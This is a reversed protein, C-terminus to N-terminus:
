KPEYADLQEEVCDIEAKSIAIENRPEANIVERRWIYRRGPRKSAHIVDPAIPDRWGPWEHEIYMLPKQHGLLLEAAHNVMGTNIERCFWTAHIMDLLHELKSSGTIVVNQDGVVQRFLEIGEVTSPKFANMRNRGLYQVRHLVARAWTLYGRSPNVPEGRIQRVLDDRYAIYSSFFSGADRLFWYFPHGEVIPTLSNEAGRLMHVLPLRAIKGQLVLSNMFAVERFIAGQTARATGMASVFAMRRFVAWFSPQYRLLLHHLRHLPDDDAISPAFWHVKYIDLDNKHTAFALVYGQAVVYNENQQLYALAADIAHPFSIDDDPVMAIFPTEISRAAALFKEGVAIDSHFPRYYAIGACAARVAEAQAPDSSDAVVIPHALGCDRFFRLHAACLQPRNRTPLVVTLSEASQGFLTM